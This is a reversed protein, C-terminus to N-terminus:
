LQGSTTSDSRLSVAAEFAIEGESGRAWLSVSRRDEAPRGCLLVRDGDFLPRHARFSFERVSAEPDHRWLLDALLTAVLPAHVVLGRYGQVDTAFRRDYHIRYGNFTLASYRFLLVEDIVVERRWAPDPPRRPPIAASGRDADEARRASDRYVIEHDEILSLGAPGSIEHRVTVFVLPGSRGTKEDINVIRSAREVADGVCLPHRIEIRGGAYMRRPLTVPPLFGGLREHGDEGLESPRSSPLFFLWHWLLPLRDGPPCAPTDRDLTAALARIPPATITDRRTETRGIWDQIAM